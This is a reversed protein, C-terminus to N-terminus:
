LSRSSSPVKRKAGSIRFGINTGLKQSYGLPITFYGVVELWRAAPLPGADISEFGIPEGLEQVQHTSVPEDGAVQLTLSDGNVKGTSKNQAFVSSFAKVM